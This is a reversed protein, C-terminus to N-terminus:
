NRRASMGCLPPHKMFDDWYGDPYNISGEESLWPGEWNFSSIGEGCALDLVTKKRVDGLLKLLTFQEIHLM